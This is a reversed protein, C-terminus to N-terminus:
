ILLNNVKRGLIFIFLCCAAFAFQTPSESAYETNKNLQLSKVVRFKFLIVRIIPFCQLIKVLICNTVEPETIGLRYDGRRRRSITLDRRSKIKYKM